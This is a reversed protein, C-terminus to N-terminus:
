YSQRPRDGAIWRERPLRAPPKQLYLYRGPVLRAFEFTHHMTYEVVARKRETESEKSGDERRQMEMWLIKAQTQAHIEILRVVYVGSRLQRRSRELLPFVWVCYTYKSINNDMYRTLVLDQDPRGVWRVCDSPRKTRSVCEVCPEHSGGAGLQVCVRVRV